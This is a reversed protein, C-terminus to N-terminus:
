HLFLRLGIIFIILPQDSRVNSTGLFFEKPADEGHRPDEFVDGSFLRPHEALLADVWPSM